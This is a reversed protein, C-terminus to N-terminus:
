DSVLLGRQILNDFVRQIGERKGALGAITSELRTAHEDLSRFERCQDLALLVQFTMVHTEGNRKIQFVCEQSSLSAVLGDESAFLPANPDAVPAPRVGPAPYNIQYNLTTQM